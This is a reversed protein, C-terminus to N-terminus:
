YEASLPNLQIVKMQFTIWFFYDQYDQRILIHIM